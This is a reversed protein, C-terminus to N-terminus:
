VSAVPQFTHIQMNHKIDNLTYTNEYTSFTSRTFTCSYFMFNNGLKVIIVCMNNNEFHSNREKRMDKEKFFFM